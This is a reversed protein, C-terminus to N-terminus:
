ALAARGRRRIQDLTVAAIIIAGIIIDQSATSIGAHVCGSKLVSMFLCGILTGLVTGEGGSLSAGGIVVAAIVELEMGTATTPDGTGTLFAFQLVGALGTALGALGYIALKVGPVNVGCLRATAENSGVAYFYRGLVSYRLVAALAVSLGLLMWVGPSVVLWRPTPEAAMLRSFWWPKSAGAIYITTSGSLWKALGRFVTMGGLTIIFPTVRLGTILAGNALGCLGGVAAGCGLALPTPLGADKILRAVVVTVLAVVSGISLDIGGGIMVMTMGLAATGVIVSHQAITRVNYVTLFKGTHRTLYAFLLTTAILGAFPGVLALLRRLLGRGRASPAKSRIPAFESDEV